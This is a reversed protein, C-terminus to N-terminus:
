DLDVVLKKYGKYVEKHRDMKLINGEQKDILLGRIPFRTDFTLERLNERTFERGCRGCIWPYMKLARERYGLNRQDASRRADAVIRDLKSEDIQKGSPVSTERKAPAGMTGGVARAAIRSQRAIGVDGTSNPCTKM